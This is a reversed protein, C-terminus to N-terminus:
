AAPVTTRRRILARVALVLAGAFAAWAPNIGALSTVVFGALTLGLVVLTFM